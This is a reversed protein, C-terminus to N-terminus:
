LFSKILGAIDKESLGEVGLLENDTKKFEGGFGEGWVARKIFGFVWGPDAAEGKSLKGLEVYASKELAETEVVKIEWSGTQGLGKALAILQNQTVVADQVYIPRNETKDAHILSQVVAKGISAGTTASFRRDGGDYLEAKKGKADVLFGVMLGWDLIPGNFILNYTVNGKAAEAALLEQTAVKDAYVPLSRVKANTTDSGFESPVIRKIGAALAAKIVNTQIHPALGGLTSILADQGKM